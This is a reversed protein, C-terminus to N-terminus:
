ATGFRISSNPYKINSEGVPIDTVRRRHAVPTRAGIGTADL